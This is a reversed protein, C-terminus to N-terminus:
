RCQSLYAEPPAMKIILLVIVLFGLLAAFVAWLPPNEKGEVKRPKMDRVDDAVTPESTSGKGTIFRYLLEDTEEPSM